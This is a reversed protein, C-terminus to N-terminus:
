PIVVSVCIWLPICAYAHDTNNHAFSLCLYMYGCLFSMWDTCCFLALAFAPTPLVGSHYLALPHCPRSNLEWLRTCSRFGCPIMYVPTSTPSFKDVSLTEQIHTLWFNIRFWTHIFGLPTHCREGTSGWPVKPYSNYSCEDGEQWSDVVCRWPFHGSFSQSM